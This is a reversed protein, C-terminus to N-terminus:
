ISQWRSGRSRLHLNISDFSVVRTGLALLCQLNNNDYNSLYVASSIINYSDLYLNGVKVPRHHNILEFIHWHDDINSCSDNWTADAWSRGEESLWCTIHAIHKGNNSNITHLQCWYCETMVVESWVKGHCSAALRCDLLSMFCLLGAATPSVSEENTFHSAKPLQIDIQTSSWSMFLITNAIKQKIMDFLPREVIMRMRKRRRRGRGKLM